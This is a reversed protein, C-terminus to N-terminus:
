NITRRLHTEWCPQGSAIDVDFSGLPYASLYFVDKSIVDPFIFRWRVNITRRLHTEWCPQGSADESTAFYTLLGKGSTEPM